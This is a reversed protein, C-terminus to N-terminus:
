DNVPRRLPLLARVCRDRLFIGLWVVVGIIIPSVFQDGVRVHTAVAGGLYGTLLVAGLVSTRPIAYLIVCALELIGIGMAHGEAYGFRAFEELVPAPKLLKMVASFTLLLVALTSIIRGTWLAAKSVPAAYENSGVVVRTTHHERAVPETVNTM